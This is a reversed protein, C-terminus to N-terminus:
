PEAASSTRKKVLAVDKVQQLLQKLENAVDQADPDVEDTEQEKRALSLQKQM